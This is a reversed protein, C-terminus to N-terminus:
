QVVETGATKEISDSIHEISTIVARKGTQSVFRVAAKVKPLMSGAGFEGQQSYLKASEQTLRRILKRDTTGFNLMAGPVDTAIMFIDASIEEALLASAIDKDIVADVGSFARKERVVPIGGGGCCIVIFDMQILNQIERKEVITLPNPSAVV